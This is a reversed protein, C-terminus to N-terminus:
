TIQQDDYHNNVRSGLAIRSADLRPEVSTSKMTLIVADTRIGYSM